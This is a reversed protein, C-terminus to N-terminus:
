SVEVVSATAWVGSHVAPALLSQASYLNINGSPRVISSALLGVPSGNSLWAGIETSIASYSNALGTTTTSIATGSSQPVLFTSGTWLIGVSGTTTPTANSSAWTAGNDTSVGVGASTGSALVTGAGNSTIFTVATGALGTAAAVTTWAAGNTSWYIDCATAARGAVYNTGTWTMYTVAQPMATTTTWTIGDTTTSMVTSSFLGAYTAGNKMIGSTMNCRLTPANTVAQSTWTVGNDVSKYSTTASTYIFFTTGIYGGVGAALSAAGAAVSSVLAWTAGSDASRYIGPGVDSSPVAIITAAGDTLLTYFQTPNGPMNILLRNFRSLGAGSNVRISDGAVLTLKGALANVGSATSLAVVSAVPYSVGGSYRDVTVSQTAVTSADNAILVAMAIASTSAPCTYLTAWTPLVEVSASKIVTTM